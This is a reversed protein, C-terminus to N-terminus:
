NELFSTSMSTELPISQYVLSIALLDKEVLSILKPLYLMVQLVTQQLLRVAALSLM